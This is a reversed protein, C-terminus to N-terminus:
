QRPTGRDGYESDLTRREPAGAFPEYANYLPTVMPDVPEGNEQLTPKPSPQPSREQNTLRPTPVPFREQNTLRPTPVPFGEPYTVSTSITRITPFKGLRHVLYMALALLLTALQLHRKVQHPKKSDGNPTTEERIRKDGADPSPTNGTMKRIFNM